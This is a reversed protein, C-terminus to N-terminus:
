KILSYATTLMACLDQVEQEASSKHCQHNNRQRGRFLWYSFDGLFHVKNSVYLRPLSYLYAKEQKSVVLLM